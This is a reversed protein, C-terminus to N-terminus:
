KKKARCEPCAMPKPDYKHQECSIDNEQKWRRLDMIETMTMGYLKVENHVLADMLVQTPIRLVESHYHILISGMDEEVKVRAAAKIKLFAIEKDKKKQMIYAGIIAGFLLAVIIM